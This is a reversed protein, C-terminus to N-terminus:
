EDQAEQEDIDVACLEIHQGSGKYLITIIIRGDGGKLSISIEPLNEKLLMLNSMVEWGTVIKCIPREGYYEALIDRLETAIDFLALYYAGSNIMNDMTPIKMKSCVL